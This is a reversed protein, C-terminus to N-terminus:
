SIRLRCPERLRHVRRRFPHLLLQVTRTLGGSVTPDRTRSASVGPKWPSGYASTSSGSSESADTEEDSVLSEVGGVPVMGSAGRGSRAVVVASLGAGGVAGASGKFRLFDNM